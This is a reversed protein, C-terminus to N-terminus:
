ACGLFHRSSPDVTWETQRDSLLRMWDILGQGKEEEWKGVEIIMKM